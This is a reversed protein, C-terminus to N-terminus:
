TNLTEIKSVFVLLLVSGYCLDHAIINDTIEIITNRQVKLQRAGFSAGAGLWANRQIRSVSFM